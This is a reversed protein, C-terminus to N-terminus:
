EYVNSVGVLYKVEKLTTAALHEVNIDVKNLADCPPEGILFLDDCKRSNLIPGHDEWRLMRVGFERKGKASIPERFFLTEDFTGGIYGDTSIIGKAYLRRIVESLDGEITCLCMVPTAIHTQKFHYKELYDKIFLVIEAGYDELSKADFVFYRLRANKDLHPKLQRRRADLLEKRSKLALTWRSIATKRIAKLRDVFQHRTINRETPDHKISINAILNIANPYALTDLDAAPIGNAKLADGVKSALGDFPEGIELTFHKIFADLDFTDGLSGILSALEKNQSKLAATLEAKGISPAPKGKVAPYYAFLVYQVESTQNAHFHNMMQLVPKYINSASFAENAEHYKCQIAKTLLPTFIDIDEVIGEVTILSDPSANLIELATKNFQYLFGKITYDASRSM